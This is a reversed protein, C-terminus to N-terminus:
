LLSLILTQLKMSYPACQRAIDEVERRRAVHWVYIPKTPRFGKHWERAWNRFVSGCNTTRLLASIIEVDTNVLTIIHRAFVVGRRNPRAKKWLVSGEAEIMAGIWASEVATMERVRSKM